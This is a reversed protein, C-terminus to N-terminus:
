VSLEWLLLLGYRVSLKHQLIGSGEQLCSSLTVYILLILLSLLGKPQFSMIVM